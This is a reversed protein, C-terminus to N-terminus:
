GDRQVVSPRRSRDRHRRATKEPDKLEDRVRQNIEDMSYGAYKESLGGHVFLTDDIKIITNHSSIWKGYPGNPGLQARHEMFGAPHQTEWHARDEDPAALGPTAPMKALDGRFREYAATRIDESKGTRFAAIEGPSVYRLDGYVNMAEHNGILCHVYGGSKPAEQELYMLLDMVKRSDPGRDVVDGTQVLHTKGGIWQLKEDILKASQLVAVFQEYDGHVDGVAVVRDVGTWVDQTKTPTTQLKAPTTQSNTTTQLKAPAAAPPQGDSAPKLDAGSRQAEAAPAKVSAVEVGTRGDAPAKASHWDGALKQAKALQPPKLKEATSKLLEGALRDGANAGRSFWAYAQVLDRTVGQGNYYLIGLNTLAGANGQDAAKRYWKLAEAYDKTVGQGIDYMVALNFQATAIGEEAAKRYWKLAEAYDKFAGKGEDYITGLNNAASADGQNAAKLYWKMAESENKPVGEGNSYMLGLNYQANINGQDAAKSYWKAAAAYDKAVGEGKAYMLGLNYQANADGHEALPTWEKLAAAFDGNQYAQLGSNFDAWVSFVLLLSFLASITLRKMILSLGYVPYLERHLM